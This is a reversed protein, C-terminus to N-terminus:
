GGENLLVRRVIEQDTDIFSYAFLHTIVGDTSNANGIFPLRLSREKVTQDFRENKITTTFLCPVQREYCISYQTFVQDSLSKHRIDRVSKGTLEQQYAEVYATGWFRYIFDLNEANWIVDVVGCYPIASLPIEMWDWNSWTPALRSGKLRQWYAYIPKTAPGGADEIRKEIGHTIVNDSQM